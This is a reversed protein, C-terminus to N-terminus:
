DVGQKAQLVVIQHRIETAQWGRQQVLHEIEEPTIHQRAQTSRPPIRDVEDAECSLKATVRNASEARFHEAGGFARAASSEAHNAIV